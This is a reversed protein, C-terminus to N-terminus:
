EHSWGLHDIPGRGQGLHWSAAGRLASAVFDKANRCADPLTSGQALFAAIASSLSCGTGHDNTTDIRPGDFVHTGTADVLIDPAVADSSFHGGKVLVANAGMTRLADGIKSMESVSRIETAELGLLAAAERLNPTVLTAHPLLTRYAAVSGQSALTHNSTSVLVPDIVLHPLAGQAAWATVEAILDPSALMGTKVAAVSFDSTVSELQARLHARPVEHVDAVGLTNQATTATIVTIGHVGLAAFTRLDAQIGAGGGSDSGAITLVCLPQM